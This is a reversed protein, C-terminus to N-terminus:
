SREVLASFGFRLRDIVLRRRLAAHAAVVTEGRGESQRVVGGLRYRVFLRVQETDERGIELIEVGSGLVRQFDEGIEALYRADADSIM